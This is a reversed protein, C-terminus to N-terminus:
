VSKKGGQCMPILDSNKFRLPLPFSLTLFSNFSQEVDIWGAKPLADTWKEMIRWVTYEAKETM